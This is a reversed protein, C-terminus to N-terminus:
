FPIELLCTYFFFFTFQMNISIPWYNSFTFLSSSRDVQVQRERLANFQRTKRLKNGLQLTYIYCLWTSLFCKSITVCVLTHPPLSLTTSSLFSSIFAPPYYKFTIFLLIDELQFPNETQFDSSLM